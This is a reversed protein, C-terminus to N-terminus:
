HGRRLPALHRSSHCEFLKPRSHISAGRTAVQERGGQPPPNPLPTAGTPPMQTRGGVRDRGWLPPPFSQASLGSAVARPPTIFLGTRRLRKVRLSSRRM